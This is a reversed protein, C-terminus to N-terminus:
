AVAVIVGGERWRWVREEGSVPVFFASRGGGSNGAAGGGGKLAPSAGGWAREEDIRIVIRIMRM